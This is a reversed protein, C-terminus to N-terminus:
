KIEAGEAPICVISWGFPLAHLTWYLYETWGLPRLHDWEYMLGIVAINVEPLDDSEFVPLGFIEM